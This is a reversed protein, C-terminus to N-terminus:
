TGGSAGAASDCDRAREAEDVLLLVLKKGLPCVALGDALECAKSLQDVDGTAVALNVSRSGRFAESVLRTGVLWHERSRMRSQM